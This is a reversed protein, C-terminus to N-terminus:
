KWDIVKQRTVSYSVDKTDMHQVWQDYAEPTTFELTYEETTKTRSNKEIVKYLM